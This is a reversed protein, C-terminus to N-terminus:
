AIADDKELRTTYYLGQLQIEWVKEDEEQWTWEAVHRIEWISFHGTLLFQCSNRKSM